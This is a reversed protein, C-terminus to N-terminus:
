PASSRGISSLPLPPPHNTPPGKIEVSKQNRHNYWYLFRDITQSGYHAHPVAVHKAAM